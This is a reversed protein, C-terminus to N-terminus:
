SRILKVAPKSIDAACRTFMSTNLTAEIDKRLDRDPPPQREAQRRGRPGDRLAATVHPEHDSLVVRM